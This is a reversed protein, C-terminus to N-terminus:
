HKKYNVIEEPSYGKTRWRFIPTDWIIRKGGKALLIELRSRDLNRRAEYPRSKGPEYERDINPAQTVILPLEFPLALSSEKSELDAKIKTWSEPELIHMVRSVGYDTQVILENPAIATVVRYKEWAQIPLDGAGAYDMFILKGDKLIEMADKLQKATATLAKIEESKLETSAYALPARSPNAKYKAAHDIGVKAKKAAALKKETKSLDDRFSKLMPVAIVKESHSQIKTAMARYYAEVDRAVADEQASNAKDEDIERQAFASSLSSLSCVTVFLAALLQIAPSSM